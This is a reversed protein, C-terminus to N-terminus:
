RGTGVSAGAGGAGGGNDARGISAESSATVASPPIVQNTQYRKQALGVRDGSSGPDPKGEYRADPDAIQAAIDQRLANGFDSSLRPKSYTCASLVACAAVAFMMRLITASNMGDVGKICFTAM